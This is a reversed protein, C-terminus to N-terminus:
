FPVGEAWDACGAERAEVPVIEGWKACKGSADFYDCEVCRTTMPSARLVRIALELNFIARDRQAPTMTLPM